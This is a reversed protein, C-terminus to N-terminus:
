VQEENMRNIARKKRKKKRLRNKLSKKRRRKRLTSKKISKEIDGLKKLVDKVADHNAIASKKDKEILPRVTEGLEGYLRAQKQKLIVIEGKAKGIKGYEEAKVKTFSFANKFAKSLDDTWKSM